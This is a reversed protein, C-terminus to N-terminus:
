LLRLHHIKRQCRWCYMDGFSCLCSKQQCLHSRSEDCSSLVAPQHVMYGERESKCSRFSFNSLSIRHYSRGLFNVLLRRTMQYVATSTSVKKRRVPPPSTIARGTVRDIRVLAKTFTIILKCTETLRLVYWPYTRCFNHWLMSSIYQRKYNVM